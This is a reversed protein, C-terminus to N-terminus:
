SSVGGDGGGDGGGTIGEGGGDGGVFVIISVGNSCGFCIEGLVSFSIAVILLINVSWPM